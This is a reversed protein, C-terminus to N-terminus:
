LLVFSNFQLFLIFNWLPSSNPPLLLKGQAKFGDPSSSCCLPSSPCNWSPSVLSLGCTRTGYSMSAALVSGACHSFWPYVICFRVKPTLSFIVIENQKGGLGGRRKSQFCINPILFSLGGACNAARVEQKETWATFLYLFQWQLKWCHKTSLYKKKLRVCWHVVAVFQSFFGVRGCSYFGFCLLEDIM